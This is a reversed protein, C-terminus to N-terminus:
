KKHAKRFEELLRERYALLQTIVPAMAVELHRRYQDRYRKPVEQLDALGFDSQVFREFRNRPVGATPSTSLIDGLERRVAPHRELYDRWAEPFADILKVHTRPRPKGIGALLKYVSAQSLGSRRGIETQSLGQRKHLEM